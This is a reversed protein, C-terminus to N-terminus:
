RAGLWAKLKAFADTRHTLPEKEAPTMEGFSRGDGADPVFVPDYGFGRTGRPPWVVQGEARGHFVEDRGDPWALCLVANFRGRHPAPVGSAEIERHAREMAVGFDRGAGTEAWDATHIGPRGGLADIDLGSDDSLAVLGTARAAAHAKLRANAAYSDGDEAPVPLGLEGASTTEVGLPALLARIEALKGANHTAVVLRGGLRQRAAERGGSM